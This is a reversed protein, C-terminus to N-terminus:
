KRTTNQRLSCEDKNTGTRYTHMSHMSEVRTYYVLRIGVVSRENGLMACDTNKIPQNNSSGEVKDKEQGDHRQFLDEAQIKRYFAM